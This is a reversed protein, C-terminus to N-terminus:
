QAEALFQQGEANDQVIVLGPNTCFQGTGLTCSAYFASAIEAGREALAGPLVFIPNVSSMELYILNGAEEAARKLAMGSPRSGTFATAAVRPDAVLRLGEEPEIHYFLQVLAAPVDSKQLAEYAAEALLRTT